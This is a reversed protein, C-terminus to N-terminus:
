GQRYVPAQSCRRRARRALLGQRGVGDGPRNAAVIPPIYVQCKATVLELGMDSHAHEKLYDFARLVQEAPGVITFDDQISFGQCDPAERLSSEYLPQVTLSFAFGAFPCGQRVGNSSELEDFLQGREYM